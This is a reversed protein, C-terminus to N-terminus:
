LGEYLEVFQELEIYDKVLIYAAEVSYGQAKMRRIEANVDM